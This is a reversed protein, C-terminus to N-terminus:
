TISPGEGCREHVFFSVPVFHQVNEDKVNGKGAAADPAIAAADPEVYANMM